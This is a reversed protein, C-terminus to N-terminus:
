RAPPGTSPTRSCPPTAATTSPRALHDLRPPRVAGAQTQRRMPRHARPKSTLTTSRSTLTLCNWCRSAPGQMARSPPLPTPDTQRQVIAPPHQRRLHPTAANADPAMSACQGPLIGAHPTNAHFVLPQGSVFCVFHFILPTGPIAGSRSGLGEAQSATRVERPHKASQAWRAGPPGEMNYGLFKIHDNDATAMSAGLGGQGSGAHAAFGQQEGVVDLGQPLRSCGWCQRCQCPGDPSLPPRAPRHWPAPWPCPPMWNRVRLLELPGATRAVRACASRMRVFGGDAAHQLVLGVQPQELLGHIVQHHLTVPHHARHGLHPM